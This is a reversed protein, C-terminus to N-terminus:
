VTLSSARPRLVGTCMATLKANASTTVKTNKSRHLTMCSLGVVGGGGDLLFNAYHAAINKERWANAEQQLYLVQPAAPKVMVVVVVLLLLLVL